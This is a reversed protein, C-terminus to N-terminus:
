VWGVPVELPPHSKLIKEYAREVFWKKLQSFENRKKYLSQVMKEIELKQKASLNQHALQWKILSTSALLDSEQSIKKEDALFTLCYSTDGDQCFIKYTFWEAKVMQSAVEEFWDAAEGSLASYSTLLFSFRDFLIKEEVGTGPPGEAGLLAYLSNRAALSLRPNKSKQLSMLCSLPKKVQGILSKREEPKLGSIDKGELIKLIQKESQFISAWDLPCSAQVPFSFFPILFLLRSRM